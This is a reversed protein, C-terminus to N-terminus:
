KCLNEAQKNWVVCNIFDCEYEGQQNKTNRRVAISFNCIANNNSSHRLEVDKVLNGRLFVKNM